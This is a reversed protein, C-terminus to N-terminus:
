IGHVLQKFRLQFERVKIKDYAIAHQKIRSHVTFKMWQSPLLYIPVFYSNLVTVQSCFLDFNHPCLDADFSAVWRQLQRGGIGGLCIMWASNCRAYKCQRATQLIEFLQLASAQSKQPSHIFDVLILADGLEWVLCEILIWVNNKTTLCWIMCKIIHTHFM